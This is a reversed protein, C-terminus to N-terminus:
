VWDINSGMTLTSSVVEDKGLVREASQAVHAIAWFKERLVFLHRCYVTPLGAETTAQQGFGLTGVSFQEQKRGLPSGVM